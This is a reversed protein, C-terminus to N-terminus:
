RVKVKPTQRFTFHKQSLYSFTVIFGIAFVRSVTPYFGMYEVMVKMISYNLFLNIVVIMLYRTLQVRGRLYSSNFVIYKSLFFGIPFSVLFSMWLAAIHPKFTIFGLNLNQQHLIFHYSIYYVTIDIIMNTGGCAAYRFTQLPILRKFPPYIWDLFSIINNRVM